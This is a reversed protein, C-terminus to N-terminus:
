EGGALARDLAEHVCGVLLQVKWAALPSPTAGESARAAAASRAEKTPEGGTMTEEVAPLRIPVNAVGGAVVRADVVVGNRITLLAFVEVSPWEAGMRSTGRVHGHVAGAPSPPVVVAALLAGPELRHERFPDAGEGFLDAVSRDDAGQVEVDAGLALLAVGLSSPHPAMCMSREFIVHRGHDGIRALCMPGGKKFCRADRSRFYWCRPRQLLNGGVTGVNRIAPTATAMAAEALGPWGSTVEVSAALEALRTMAGVRLLAPSDDRVLLEVGRLEELDRLDALDGDHLGEARLDQLDTGGARFAGPAALAEEFTRPFRIV